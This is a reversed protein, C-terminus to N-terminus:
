ILAATLLLQLEFPRGQQTGSEEAPLGLVIHVEGLQHIHGIHPSFQPAVGFNICQESVFPSANNLKGEINFFFIQCKRSDTLERKM